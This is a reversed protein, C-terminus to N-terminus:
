SILFDELIQPCFGGVTFCNLLCIWHCPGLVFNLKIEQIFKDVPHFKFIRGVTKGFDTNAILRCPKSGSVVKCFDM